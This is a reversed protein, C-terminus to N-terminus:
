DNEDLGRKKRGRTGKEDLASSNPATTKDTNVM